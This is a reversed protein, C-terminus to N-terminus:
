SEVMGILDEVFSAMSIPKRFLGAFGAAMVEDHMQLSHDATMAVVQVEALRAQTRVAQLLQWGDMGPLGLDTLLVTPVGGNMKELAEEGSAATLVQAGNTRLIMALIERMGPEDDVICISWLSIEM